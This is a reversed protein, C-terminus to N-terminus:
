GLKKDFFKQVDDKLKRDKNSFDKVSMSVIKNYFKDIFDSKLSSLEDQAKRIRDNLRKRDEGRKPHFLAVGIKKDPHDFVIKDKLYVDYGIGRVAQSRINAQAQIDGLGEQYNRASLLSTILAPDQEFGEPLYAALPIGDNQRYIIVVWEKLEKYSKGFVM